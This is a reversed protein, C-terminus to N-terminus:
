PLRGVRQHGRLVVPKRNIFQNKFFLLLSSVVPAKECSYSFPFGITSAANAPAERRGRGITIVANANMRPHTGSHAGEPEPAADLCIRPVVTIPPISAAVKM